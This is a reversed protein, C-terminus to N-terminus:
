DGPHAVESLSNSFTPNRVYVEGKIRPAWCAHALARVALEDESRLHTVEDGVELRFGERGCDGGTKPIGVRLPRQGLSVAGAVDHDMACASLDGVLRPQDLELLLEQGIL